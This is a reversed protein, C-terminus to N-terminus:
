WLYYVSAWMFDCGRKNELSMWDNKLVIVGLGLRLGLEGFM